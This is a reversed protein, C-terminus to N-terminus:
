LTKAAGVFRPRQQIPPFSWCTRFLALTTALPGKKSPCALRPESRAFTLHRGREICRAPGVQKKWWKWSTTDPGKGNKPGMQGVSPTNTGVGTARLGEEQEKLLYTEEAERGGQRGAERENERREPPSTSQAGEGQM